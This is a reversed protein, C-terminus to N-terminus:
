KLIINKVIQLKDENFIDIHFLCISKCYRRWQDDLQEKEHYYVSLCHYCWKQRFDSITKKRLLRKIRVVKKKLKNEKTTLETYKRVLEQNENERNENTIDFELDLLNAPLTM